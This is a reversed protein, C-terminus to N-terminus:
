NDTLSITAGSKEPSKKCKESAGEIKHQLFFKFMTLEFLLPLHYNLPNARRFIYQDGKPQNAKRELM